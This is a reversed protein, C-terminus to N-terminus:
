IELKGDYMMSSVKFKVNFKLKPNLEFNFKLTDAEPTVFPQGDLNRDFVFKAGLNDASPARYDTLLLRKGDKREIYVKDKLFDATLKGLGGMAAASMKPDDAEISVTVVLLNGFDRDIFTQMTEPLKPDPNALMVMRSFAERVPKASMFRVRYKMAKSNKAEGSEANPNVGIQRGAGGNSAVQTVAGGTPVSDDKTYTQGWASDNLIKEADKKQWDTWPKAKQALVPCAFVAFALGVFLLKRM